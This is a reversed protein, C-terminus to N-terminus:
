KVLVSFSGSIKREVTGQGSACEVIGSITGKITRGPFIELESFSAYVEKLPLKSCMISNHNVHFDLFPVKSKDFTPNSDYDKPIGFVAGFFSGFNEFENEFVISHIGSLSDNPIEPILYCNNQILLFNELGEIDISIFNDLDNCVSIELFEQTPDNSDFTIEESTQTADVDAIQLEISDLDCRFYSLDFTGDDDLPYRNIQEGSAVRVYGNSVIENNCNVARGRINVMSNNLLLDDIVIEELDVSESFPGYTDQFIVKGCIDLVKLEFREDKPFNYFSFSGDECLWGGISGILDSCVFVQLFSAGVVVTRESLQNSVNIKVQGSIEIIDYKFDVNWSSFHSVEGVYTDNELFAEGEQLWIGETENYSWLPITPAAIPMLESPIPFTLTALSGQSLNLLSGDDAILEVQIMGMTRLAQLEGNENIGSLDGIMRQALDETSPDIWAMAIAVAGNYIEGSNDVIANPPLDLKAGDLNSLSGGSSADINGVVIRDIMKIETYNSRNEVLPIKRFAEFRRPSTVSVFAANGMNKVENLWFYGDEDTKVQKQNLGSKYRVDADIIPSGSEDIVRGYVSANLFGTNELTASSSDNPINDIPEINICSGIWLCSLLLICLLSKISPTNM